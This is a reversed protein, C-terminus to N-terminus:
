DYVTRCLAFNPSSSAGPGTDVEAVIGGGGRRRRGAFLDDHLVAFMGLLTHCRVIRERVCSFRVASGPDVSFRRGDDIRGAALIRCPVGAVGM